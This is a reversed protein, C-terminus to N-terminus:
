LTESLTWTIVAKYEAETPGAKSPDLLLSVSNAETGLEHLGFNLEFDGYGQGDTVDNTIFDVSPGAAAADGSALTAAATVGTPKLAPDATSTVSINKYELQAGKLYTGGAEKFNQTLAASLKYTHNEVGRIDRYKVFNQVEFEEFGTDTSGPNALFAAADYSTTSGAGLVSHEKFDLPTVAMIGFTGPNTVEPINTITTGTSNGPDTIQDTGGNTDMTFQIRGTGTKDVAQSTHPVALAVGVVALLAAGCVKNTMKM